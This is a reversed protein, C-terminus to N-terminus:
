SGQLVPLLEFGAGLIDRHPIQLWRDLLTAYIQRFDVSHIPDGDELRTLDLPSGHLGAKVPQGLLFVPAATGHDTGGSGNENLRRGFESFVLVVVREAEGSTKLDNLFARLSTGLEGLLNAHQSLQGSHTDFGDLHTYYISTTLGAKILQAILQLRQALGYFEPYDAKAAPRDKQIQELRASSAYTILSCREVFQLPSGPTGREQRALRDLAEIQAAAEAGQPMGLRRRFQELRAMSPVVQRGGSLAGPLPFAEHIHLGAADGDPGTQRDLARALWGPAAKDLKTKATQWIAMSDFHSRNPNPYGVGQVIALQEQELLKAFPELSPHLGVRDNIKLVEGAPIALKPRRQRYADDRYPVVTNLGDNGGDLQVVVLIRGKADPRDDALAHASRALFLPVTPGCALLASSGLGLRLMERRTPHM